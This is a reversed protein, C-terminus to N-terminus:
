IACSPTIVATVQSKCRKAPPSGTGDCPRSDRKQKLKQEGELEMAVVEEVVEEEEGREVVLMEGGGGGEVVEEAVEGAGRERESAMAAKAQKKTGYRKGTPSYCVL